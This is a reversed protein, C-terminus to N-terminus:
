EGCRTFCRQLLYFSEVGGAMLSHYLRAEFALLSKEDTLRTKGVMKFGVVVSM